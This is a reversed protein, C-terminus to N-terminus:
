TPNTVFDRTNESLNDLFFPSNIGGEELDEQALAVQPDVQVEVLHALAKVLAQDAQLVLAPLILLPDVQRIEM